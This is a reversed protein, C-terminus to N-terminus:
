HLIDTCCRGQLLFELAVNCFFGFGASSINRTGRNDKNEKGVMKLSPTYLEMANAVLTKLNFTIYVLRRVQQHTRLAKIVTPHLGGPPLDVLAVGNKFQQM